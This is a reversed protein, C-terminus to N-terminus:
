QRTINPTTTSTRDTDQTSRGTDTSSGGGTGQAGQTNRTVNLRNQVDKVGSINDALDEACYKQTRDRISGELTVVGSKVTISIESADIRPDNTLRECLDEKIREDSREYGKPSRGRFNQQSSRQGLEDGQTGRGPWGQLGANQQGYGGGYSGSGRGYDANFYGMDSQSLNQQPSYGGQDAYQNRQSPFQPDSGWRQAREFDPSRGFRGSNGFETGYTQPRQEFSSQRGQSQASRYDGRSQREWDDQRLQGSRGWDDGRGGLSYDSQQDQFERQSSRYDQNRRYDQNMRFDDDRNGESQRYMRNERWQDQTEDMSPEYPPVDYNSTDQSFGGRQSSGQQRSGSQRPNHPQNYSM